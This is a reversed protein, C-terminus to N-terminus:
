FSWWPVYYNSTVDSSAAKHGNCCSCLLQFNSPDNTGARALPVIHDYHIQRDTALLGSLDKRCLVCRGQDRYFIARKLWQPLACRRIAGNKTVSEPRFTLQASRMHQGLSLSFQQLFRRNSFVIHFVEETVEGWYEYFADRNTDFWRYFDDGDETNSECKRRYDDYSRYQVEYERMVSELREIDVEDMLDSNKRYQYLKDLCVMHWIYHHLVTLKNPRCLKNCLESDEDLCLELFTQPFQANAEVIAAYEYIDRLTYRKDTKLM